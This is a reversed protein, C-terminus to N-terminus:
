VAAPSTVADTVMALAVCVIVPKAGADGMVWVVVGGPFVIVRVAVAEDPKGTVKAEVLGLMQVVLPVLPAVGVMTVTPVHVNVAFWTPLALKLAAISTVALTVIVCAVCLM